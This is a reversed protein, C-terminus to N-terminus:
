SNKALAEAKRKEVAEIAEARDLIIKARYYVPIDVMKGDMGVSATGRKVGEEFAQVARRAYEVKDPSPSFVKHLIKVHDPHICGAGETGLQRGRMAAREFGELDKYGAVSGLLGTARIKKAKCIGVVKSVAYLLEMGDASPEVGLSFCYDEPGIGMSVIRSSAESISLANLLGLTTEIHAAITISKLPLGREREKAELLADLRHVQEASEVKPFAIGNLGPYVSADVDECILDTENNIRVLVEAGGRAAMPIADHVLKRANEKESPPVSDELDLSIADAGRLYAKEIFRKVNVPFILTSRRIQIGM